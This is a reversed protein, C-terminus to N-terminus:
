QCHSADPQGTARQMQAAMQRASGPQFVQGGGAQAVCNLVQRATGGSMDIVSLTVNPKSRRVDRAAACPNDGCTDEGDTVIVLTTPARRSAMAGARRISAALSTRRAPSIGNVKRLLAGREAYGHYRSNSTAGCDSFSVMGIRIDRHLGRVVQGISQKAASMRSSAGSIGEEMSGSGDVVFVMRPQKGPAWTPNCASGRAPEPRAPPPNAPTAAGQPPEPEEVPRARPPVPPRPLPKPAVLPSDAQAPEAEPDPSPEPLAEAIVAPDAPLDTPPDTPLDTPPAVPAPLVCASQFEAQVARVDDLAAGLAAIRNLVDDGPDYALPAPPTIEVTRVPAPLTWQYGLWLLCLALAVPIAWLPWPFVRASTRQEAGAPSSPTGTGAAMGAHAGDDGFHGTPASLDSLSVQGSPSAMDPETGLETGPEMGPPRAQGPAVMGWNILVPAGDAAGLCASAEGTPTTMAARLLAAAAQGAEGREEIESALQRVRARLVEHADESHAPRLAGGGPGQWGLLEGRADM